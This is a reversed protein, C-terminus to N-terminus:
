DDGTGTEIYVGGVLKHYEYCEAWYKEWTKDDDDKPMTPEPIAKWNPNLPTRAM